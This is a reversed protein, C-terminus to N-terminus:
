RRRQLERSMADDYGDWIKDFNRFKETIFEGIKRLDLTIFFISVVVM